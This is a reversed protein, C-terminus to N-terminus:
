VTEKQKWGKHLFSSIKKQSPVCVHSSFTPNVLALAALLTRFECGVTPSSSRFQDKGFRLALSSKGVGSSGLLVM